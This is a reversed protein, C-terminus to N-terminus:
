NFTVRMVAHAYDGKITSVVGISSVPELWARTDPAGGDLMSSVTPLALAANVNVFLISGAEGEVVRKFSDVDGIKTAPAKLDAIEQGVAIYGTDGEQGFAITPEPVQSFLDGLGDFIEKQKAPDDSRLVAGIVPQDDPYNFSFAAQTGVLAALDDAGNIGLETLSDVMGYQGELMTWLQSFTDDSTVSGAVAVSDGPLGGVLDSVSGTTTPASPAQIATRLTLMDDAVQLGLAGHADRLGDFQSTEVGSAAGAEAMAETLLGPAFWVTALSSGGLEAMDAQYTANDAISGSKVSDASLADDDAVVMVNEVFFVNMDSLHKKAFDEAKGKDKTEIALLMRDGSEAEALSHVGSAMSDGLWPGIETDYDPADPDSQAVLTYLAKKYDTGAEDLNGEPFKEVIAKLALQDAVAPNLNVEVVLALDGPLAKAAAVSSGRLFSLGFVVGGAILALALVGAIIAPVKSKKKPSPAQTAYGPQGQPGYGPQGQPGFNQQGQSPYGPQSQAPYGPQGQPGYGPQGQPGFNQQGQAPYGPQGQPGYGPQSPPQGPGGNPSWPQQPPQSGQQWGSNPPTQSM